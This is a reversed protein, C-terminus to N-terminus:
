IMLYKKRLAAWYARFYAKFAYCGKRYECHTEHICDDCPNFIKEM